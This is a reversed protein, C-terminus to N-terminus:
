EQYSKKGKKKKKKAMGHFKLERVLSQVWNVVIFADLGLWQAELFEGLYSFELLFLQLCACYKICLFM